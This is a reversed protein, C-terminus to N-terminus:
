EYLIYYESHPVIVSLKLFTLLDLSSWWRNLFTLNLFRDHRGDNDHRLDNDSRREENQLCIDSIISYKKQSMEPNESENRTPTIIFNFEASIDTFHIFVM